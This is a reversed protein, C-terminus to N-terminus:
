NPDALAIQLKGLLAGIRLMEKLEGEVFKLHTLDAPLQNFTPDLSLWCGDLCVENWAHYYFAGGQFVVGAVVRAPIGASRALAAFLTAHENCDGKRSELTAIADPIGLVPRKELNDHVWAALIRVAQLPPPAAALLERTLGIIRPDGSQLYPTPALEAEQERCPGANAAPLQELTLTLLEGSLSQRDQNLAPFEEDPLSLRFRLATRGALEPMVGALPIAVTRLLEPGTGRMETAKFEPEAIFVFGASSEEKLVQGENNLWSNVRTGAYSEVFRHLNYVQGLIIQKEMGKYQVVANQAGLTLPDFYPVKVTDGVQLGAHLLYGRRNSALYPPSALQISDAVRNKGSNLVFHVTNGEVEGSAEMRSFPSDLHFSFQRLLHAPSLQATGQLHITQVEDLINLRLYAEQRLTIGGDAGPAHINKVYGIRASNLYVGMFSEEAHLAVVEAERQALTTVFYDRKLLLALLVLWLALVAIRLFNYPGIRLPRGAM